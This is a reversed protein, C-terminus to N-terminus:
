FFVSTTGAPWVKVRCSVLSNKYDDNWKICRDGLVMEQYSYLLLHIQCWIEINFHGAM